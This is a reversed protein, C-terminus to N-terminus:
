HSLGQPVNDSSYTSSIKKPYLVYASGVKETIEYNDTALKIFDKRLFISSDDEAIRAGEGLDCLVGFRKPMIMVSYKKQSINNYFGEPNFIGTRCLNNLVFPEIVSDKGSFVLWDTIWTLAPGPNKKLIEVAKQYYEKQLDLREARVSPDLNTGMLGLPRFYLISVQLVILITMCFQLTNKNMKLTAPIILLFVASMLFVLLKIFTEELLYYSLLWAVFLPVMCVLINGAKIHLNDWINKYRGFVLGLALLASASLEFFQNMDSGAKGMAFVLYPIQILLYLFILNETENRVKKGQKFLLSLFSLSIFSYSLIIYLVFRWAMSFSYLSSGIYTFANLFFAGDTIKNVFFFAISSLLSFELLYLFWKARKTIIMILFVPVILSAFNFKTFFALTLILPSLYFLLRNEFTALFLALLSLFLGLSDVRMYQGCSSIPLLLPFMLSIMVSLLRNKTLKLLILFILFISLYNSVLSVLRGGLFNLGFLKFWLGTFLYYVPPYLATIKHFNVSPNGYYITEGKAILRSANLILGEGFSIEFPYTIKHKSHFFYFCNVIILTSILVVNIIKTFNNM